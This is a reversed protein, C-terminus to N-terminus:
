AVAAAKATSRKGLRHVLCLGLLAPVAVWGVGGEPVAASTVSVDDLRFFDPDHRYQFELTTSAATALLNGFTYEVYDSTEPLDTSASVLAGNFYVNFFNPTTSGTADDADVKLFFDLTYLTGAATALVQSLTGIPAPNAEDAKPGLAAYQTGNHAFHFSGFDTGVVDNGTPDSHTWGPSFDDTGGASQEFGGNVVIQAAKANVGSFLLMSIVVPIIPLLSRKM